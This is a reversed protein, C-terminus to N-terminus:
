TTTGLLYGAIVKAKKAGILPLKSLIECPKAASSLADILVKMSVYNDKITKAIKVSVGPIQCLQMLYCNEPTMNECRRSKVKCSDVYTSPDEAGSAGAFKEPNQQVKTAVNLIWKATEPADRVFVIHIGDRYMSNIYAGEYVSQTLGHRSEASPLPTGGEIIYTVHKPQCHSLIRRKQEKYRGDKISAALDSLTKREFVLTINHQADVIQVDGLQLNKHVVNVGHPMAADFQSILATERYDVHIEMTM